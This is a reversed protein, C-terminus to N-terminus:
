KDGWNEAAQRTIEQCASEYSDWGYDFAEGAMWAWGWCLLALLIALLVVAWAPLRIEQDRDDDTM